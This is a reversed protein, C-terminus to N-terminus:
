NILYKFFLVIKAIIYSLYLLFMQFINANNYKKEFYRQSKKQITFKNLRKLSKDISVSHNHYVDIDNVIVINKNLKKTKVGFINEEYYLFVNEDFGNIDLYHKSSMAFFCGSVTDVKSLKKDYYSDRYLLHKNFYKRHFYPINLMVEQMPKPIVWGRSINNGEIINPAVIVNKDTINSLLEKIDKEDNIEIDANSFIINCEKYLDILYKAGINLAYSYGKNENTELVIIKKNNYSELRSLSDDTSKNDVIVIKDFINYDSINNLLKITTKYDNYNVIVIANKM